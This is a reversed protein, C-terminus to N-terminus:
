LKKDRKGVKLAAFGNSPSGIASKVYDSKRVKPTNWYFNLHRHFLLIVKSIDDAKLGAEDLVEQIPNVLEPM